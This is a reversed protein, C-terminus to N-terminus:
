WCPPLFFIVEDIVNRPFEGNDKRTIFLVKRSLLKFVQVAKFAFIETSTVKKSTIM